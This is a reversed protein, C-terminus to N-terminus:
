DENDVKISLFESQDPRRDKKFVAGMGRCAIVNM